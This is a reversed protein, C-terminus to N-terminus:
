HISLTLSLSSEVHDDSDHHMRQSVHVHVFDLPLRDLYLRLPNVLRVRNVLQKQLKFSIEQLWLLATRM